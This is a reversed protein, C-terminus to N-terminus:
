PVVQIRDRLPPDLPAGSLSPKLLQELAELDGVGGTRDSGTHLVSYQARGTMTTNVTIRFSQWPHVPEGGIRLDSVPNPADACPRGTAARAKSRSWTYTVTSSVGLV